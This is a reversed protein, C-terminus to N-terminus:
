RFGASWGAHDRKEAGEQPQVAEGRPGCPEEARGGHGPPDAEGPEPRIGDRNVRKRVNDRMKGVLAVNVDSGILARCVDGLVENFTKEDVQEAMALKGLASTLKTGLESLVM